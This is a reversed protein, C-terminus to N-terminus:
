LVSECMRRVGSETVSHENGVGMRAGCTRVRRVSPRHARWVGQRHDDALPTAHPLGARPTYKGVRILEISSPSFVTWIM